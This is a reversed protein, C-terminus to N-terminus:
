VLVFPPDKGSYQYTHIPFPSPTSTSIRCFVFKTTAWHAVYHISRKIKRAQWTFTAPISEIVELIIPTIRWDLPNKPNQLSEIIVESDGELIFHKLNMSQARSVALRTALAEGTNPTCKAKIQSSM